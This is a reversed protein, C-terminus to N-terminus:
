KVYRFDGKSKKASHQSSMRPYAVPLLIGEDDENFLDELISKRKSSKLTSHSLTTQMTAAKTPSDLDNTAKFAPGRCSKPTSSSPSRPVLDDVSSHEEPSNHITSPFLHTASTGRRDEQSAQYPGPVSSQQSNTRSRGAGDTFSQGDRQWSDRRVIPPRMIAEGRVNSRPSVKQYWHQFLLAGTYQRRSAGREDMAFQMMPALEDFTLGVEECSGRPYRSLPLITDVFYNHEIDSWFPAGM